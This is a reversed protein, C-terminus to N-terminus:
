SSLSLIDEIESESLFRWEGAKLKGSTINGIRTRVLRIVPHGLADFMRRIQRKRGETITIDVISTQRATNIAELAVEAPSTLGDELLVGNMLHDLEEQPIIGVAEVKYTKPVHHRPHTIRFSFDGDNTLILLGETDVDLRGVPYVLKGADKILDTVLRKAYPDRRTSTYGRPKNLLIYIFEPHLDVPVGDLTIVATDPDAKSGLETIVAGNVSVRGSAILNEAQRRSAVGAAALLKQM